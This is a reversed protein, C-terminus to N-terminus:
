VIGAVALSFRLYDGSEVLELGYSGLSESVSERLPLLHISQDVELASHIYGWVSVEPSVYDLLTM